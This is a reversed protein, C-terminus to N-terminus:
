IFSFAYDAETRDLGCACDHRLTPPPPALATDGNSMHPSPSVTVFGKDPMFGNQAEVELGRGRRRPTAWQLHLKQSWPTMRTSTRFYIYKVRKALRAAMMELKGLVVSCERCERRVM